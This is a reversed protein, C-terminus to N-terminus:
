GRVPGPGSARFPTLRPGPPAATSTPLVALPWPTTTLRPRPAIATGPVLLRSDTEQAVAVVQQAAPSAM